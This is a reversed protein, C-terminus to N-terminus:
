NIEKGLTLRKSRDGARSVMLVKRMKEHGMGNGEEARQALMAKGQNRFGALSEMDEEAGIGILLANMEGIVELPFKVFHGPVELIIDQDLGAGIFDDDIAESGEGEM